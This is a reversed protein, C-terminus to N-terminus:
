DWNIKLKKGIQIRYKNRFQLNPSLEIGGEWSIAEAKDDYCFWFDYPGDIYHAILFKRLRALIKKESKTFQKKM